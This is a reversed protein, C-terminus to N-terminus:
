SISENAAILGAPRFTLFCIPQSAVAPDFTLQRRNANTFLDYVLVQTRQRGGPVVAAAVQRGDPSLPRTMTWGGVRVIKQMPVDMVYQGGDRVFGSVDADIDYFTFMQGSALWVGAYGSPVAAVVAGTAPTVVEISRFHQNWLVLGQPSIDVRDLPHAEGDPTSLDIEARDVRLWGAEPDFLAVTGNDAVNVTTYDRDTLMQEVTGPESVVSLQRRESLLALVRGDPSCDVTSIRGDNGILAEGASEGNANIVFYANRGNIIQTYVVYLAPSAYESWGWARAILVGFLVLCVALRLSLFALFRLM